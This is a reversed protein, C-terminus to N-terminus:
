KGKGETEFGSLVIRGSKRYSQATITSVTGTQSDREVLRRASYYDLGRVTERERGNWRLVDFRRTM